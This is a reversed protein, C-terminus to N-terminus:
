ENKSSGGQPALFFRIKCKKFDNRRVWFEFEFRSLLQWLSCTDKLLELATPLADSVEFLWTSHPRVVGSACFSVFLCLAVFLSASLFGSFLTLDLVIVVAVILKEEYQQGAVSDM